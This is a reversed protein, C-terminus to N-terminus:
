TKSKQYGHYFNLRNDWTKGSCDLYESDVSYLLAPLPVHFLDVRIKFDDSFCAGDKEFYAEWVSYEKDFSEDREIKILTPAFALRYGSSYALYYYVGDPFTTFTITEGLFAVKKEMIKQTDYAILEAEVIIHDKFPPYVPLHREVHDDTYNKCGAYGTDLIIEDTNYGYLIDPDIGGYYRGPDFEGDNQWSMPPTRLNDAWTASVNILTGKKVFAGSANHM